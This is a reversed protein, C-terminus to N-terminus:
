HIRVVCRDRGEGGGVVGIGITGLDVVLGLRTDSQLREWAKLMGDSWRIDDFVIVTGPKSFGLIEEFYDLTPQYQHHGDVFAIGVSEVSRLAPLLTDTFRGQMYTVNDLGIQRHIDQAIRQRYSSADLTLLAGSGNAKLAAAIYSGSIGVNTGLEIVELPRFTRVLTYLLRAWRPPKSVRCAEQVTLGGDYLGAEGLSGDVLLDTRRLLRKRQSEVKDIWGQEESSPKQGFSRVAAALRASEPHSSAELAELARRNNRYNALDSLRRHVKAALPIKQFVRRLRM